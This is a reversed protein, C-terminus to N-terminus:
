SGQKPRQHDQWEHKCSPRGCNSADGMFVRCSCIGCRSRVYDAPPGPESSKPAATDEAVADDGTSATSSDRCATLTLLAAACAALGVRRINIRTM